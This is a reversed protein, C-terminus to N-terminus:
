FDAVLGLLLLVYEGLENLVVIGAEQCRDHASQMQPSIYSTTLVSVKHAIAAEIVHPDSSFVHPFTM